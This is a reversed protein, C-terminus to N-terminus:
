PPMTQTNDRIIHPGKPTNIPILWHQIIGQSNVWVMLSVESEVTRAPSKSTEEEYYIKNRKAKVSGEVKVKGRLHQISYWSWIYIKGSAYDSTIDKPPGLQRIFDAIHHGKWANMWSTIGAKMTKLKAANEKAQQKQADDIIALIIVVVIGTIIAAAIERDDGELSGIEYPQKHSTSSTTSGCSYLTVSLLCVIAITKM